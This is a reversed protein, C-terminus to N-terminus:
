LYFFLSKYLTKRKSSNFAILVFCYSSVHIYKSFGLGTWKQTYTVGLSELVAPGTNYKSTSLFM